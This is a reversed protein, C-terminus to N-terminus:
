KQNRLWDWAEGANKFYYSEHYPVNGLVDWNKLKDMLDTTKVKKIFVNTKQKRQLWNYTLDANKFPVLDDAIGHVFYLPADLKYTPYNLNELDNTKLYGYLFGYKAKLDSLTAANVVDQMLTPMVKNVQAATHKGDIMPPLLKAYNPPEKNSLYQDPATYKQYTNNMTVMIYPGYFNAVKPYPVEGVMPDLMANALSYPGAMPASAIVRNIGYKASNVELEHQLALTVYGGESYGTLRVDGSLEPPKAENNIFNQSKFMGRIAKLMNGASNALPAYQCYPHVIGSSEGSKGLGLYDPIAVVYGEGAALTVALGMEAGRSSSPAEDRSLMTGHQYSLFDAKKDKPWRQNAKPVVVVGSANVIDKGDVSLTRYHINYIDVDYKFVLRDLESQTWLRTTVFRTAYYGFGIGEVAADMAYDYVDDYDLNLQRHTYENFVGEEAGAALPVVAYGSGNDVILEMTEPAVGEVTPVTVMMSSKGSAVDMPSKEANGAYADTYIFSDKLIEGPTYDMKGTFPDQYSIAVTPQKGFYYGSLSVTPMGNVESTHVNAVYPSHVQLNYGVVFSAGRKPKMYIRYAGAPVQEPVRLKYIGSFNNLFELPYRGRQNKIYFAPQGRVITRDLTKKTASPLRNVDLSVLMGGTSLQNEAHVQHPLGALMVLVVLLARIFGQCPTYMKSEQATPLLLGAREHRSDKPLTYNVTVTEEIHQKNSYAWPELTETCALRVWGSIVPM